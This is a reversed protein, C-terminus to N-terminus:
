LSCRGLLFKNRKVLEIHIVDNGVKKYQGWEDADRWIKLM